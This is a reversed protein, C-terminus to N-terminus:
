NRHTNSPSAETNLVYEGLDIVPSDAFLLYFYKLTEALWFSEMKDRFRIQTTLVSHISSYGGDPVRCYKKFNEFIVWARERYSEDGTLSYLIYMSEVTEPRLLNHADAPKVHIDRDGGNFFVIEPALGTPQDTYMHICTELIDKALEMRKEDVGGKGYPEHAANAAGLALVGPLFCVLHDMKPVKTRGNAELEAIYVYGNPSSRSVLQSEIAEVATM